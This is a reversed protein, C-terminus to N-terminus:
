KSKGSVRLRIATGFPDATILDTGERAAAFEGAILSAAAADIDRADPLEITWEILGAEDAGMPAANAGAWINTGLHHHYGGASFFLAGPYTWVTRDFGLAECFFAAAKEISGVHLHVHGMVTGAPMGTWPTAGAAAILGEFDVPDTAMVLERDVRRWTDRPRDAYVEIGLGDPDHLYLAESVLHDGAGAEAGIDGLHRVVRGLSARDPLLIAFHFLGTRGRQPVPRAGTLENLQLLARDDGHAGLTASRDGRTLLRTGLVTEYYAISRALDAVRLRVEALRTDAPLRFGRPAQGYSGPTAPEGSATGFITNASDTM